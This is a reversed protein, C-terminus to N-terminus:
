HVDENAMDYGAPKEGQLILETMILAFIEIRNGGIKNRGKSQNFTKSM